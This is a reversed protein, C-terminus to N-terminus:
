RSAPIQRLHAGVIHWRRRAASSGDVDNVRRLTYSGAFHRRKGDILRADVRVRIEAYVSGAGGETTFPALPTVRASATRAYGARFAALDHGGNWLSHAARYDKHDIAAYYARVVGVAAMVSTEAAPTPAVAM